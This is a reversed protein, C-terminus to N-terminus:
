EQPTSGARKEAFDAIRTIIELADDASVDLMEMVVLDPRAASQFAELWFYATRAPTKVEVFDGRWSLTFNM